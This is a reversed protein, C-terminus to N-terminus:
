SWDISELHGVTTSKPHAPPWTKKENVHKGTGTSIPTIPTFIQLHMSESGWKEGGSLGTLM